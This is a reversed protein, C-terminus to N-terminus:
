SASKKQNLKKLHTKAKNVASKNQKFMSIVSQFAQKATSTDGKKESKEGVALLIEPLYQNDLNLYTHLINESDSLSLKSHIMDNLQKKASHYFGPKPYSWPSSWCNVVQELGGQYHSGGNTSPTGKLALGYKQKQINHQAQAYYHKSMQYSSVWVWGYMILCFIAVVSVIIMMRKM